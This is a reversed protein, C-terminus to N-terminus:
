VRHTVGESSVISSELDATLTAGDTTVMVISAQAVLPVALLLLWSDSADMSWEQDLILLRSQAALHLHQAIEEARAHTKAHTFTHEGLILATASDPVPAYPVFVDPHTRQATAADIVGTPLPQSIPMGFSERSVALQDDAGDINELTGLVGVGIGGVPHLGPQLTVGTAAAAGIWLSTQWHLPLHAALVDGPQADLEDRLLGAIKAVGNAVSAASLEMREAIIGDELRLFTVLPRAPDRRSRELLLDFVTM